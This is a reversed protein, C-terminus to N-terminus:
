CLTRVDWGHSLVHCSNRRRQLQIIDWEIYVVFKARAPQLHVCGALRMRKPRVRHQMLMLGNPVTLLDCRGRKHKGAPPLHQRTSCAPGRYRRRSVRLMPHPYLHPGSTLPFLPLTVEPIFLMGRLQWSRFDTESGNAKLGSSMYTENALLM